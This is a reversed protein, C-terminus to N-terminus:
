SYMGGDIGAGPSAATVEAVDLAQLEPKHWSKRADVSKVEADDAKGHEFGQDAM